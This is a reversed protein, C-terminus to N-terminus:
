AKKSKFSIQVTSQKIDGFAIQKEEKKPKKPDPRVELAIDEENVAQLKGLISQGNNTEVLLQRGIHKGYQRPMLLPKDAGPSSIEFRFRAEGTDMEDLQASVRRSLRACYGIDMGQDGDVYIKISSENANSQHSVVFYATDRIEEEILQLITQTLSLIQSLFFPILIGKRVRIHGCIYCM